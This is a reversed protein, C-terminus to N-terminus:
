ECLRLSFLDFFKYANLAEYKSRFRLHDPAELFDLNKIYRYLLKFIESERMIQGCLFVPVTEPNIKFQDLVLMVYYVFDRVNQFSFSNNFMLNKKEFLLINLKRNLVNIYMHFGDQNESLLNAGQIFATSNHFLKINKFSELILSEIEQNVAYVNKADVFSIDDTGVKDTPLLNMMNELYATKENEDFLNSPILTHKSNNVALRVSAFDLKLIEDQLFTNRFFAKVDANEEWNYSRLVIVNQNKDLVLFSFRGEGILASLDYLIANKKIFSDEIFDLSIM